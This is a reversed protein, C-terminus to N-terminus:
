EMTKVTEHKKFFYVLSDVKRDLLHDLEDVGIAEKGGVAVVDDGANGQTGVDLEDDFVSHMFVRQRKFLTGVQNPRLHHRREDVLSLWGVVYLETKHLSKPVWMGIAVVAVM